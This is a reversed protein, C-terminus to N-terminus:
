RCKGGKGCFPKCVCPFITGLQLARCPELTTDWIQKPVYAMALPAEAEALHQYISVVRLNKERGYECNMRNSNSM